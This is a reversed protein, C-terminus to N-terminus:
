KRKSRWKGRTQINESLSQAGEDSIGNESLDLHQLSNNVKLSESLTQAEEDGINANSLYISDINNEQLRQIVNSLSHSEM